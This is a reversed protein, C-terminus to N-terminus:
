FGYQVTGSLGRPGVPANPQPNTAPGWRAGPIESHLKSTEDMGTRRGQGDIVLLNAGLPAPVPTGDQATVYVSVTLRYPPEFTPEITTVGSQNAGPRLIVQASALDVWTLAFAVLILRSIARRGNPGQETRARAM